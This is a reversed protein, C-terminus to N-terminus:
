ITEVVIELNEASLRLSNVKKMATNDLNLLKLYKTITDPQTAHITSMLGTFIKGNVSKRHLEDFASQMDYYENNRLKQKKLMQPKELTTDGTM